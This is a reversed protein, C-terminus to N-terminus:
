SWSCIRQAPRIRCYPWQPRALTLYRLEARTIHTRRADALSARLSERWSLLRGEGACGASGGSCVAPANRASAGRQHMSADDGAAAAAAATHLATSAAGLSSEEAAAWAAATAAAAAAAPKHAAPVAPGLSDLLELAAGRLWRARSLPVAAPTLPAASKAASKAAISRRLKQFRISRIRTNLVVLRHLREQPPRLRKSSRLDQPAPFGYNRHLM